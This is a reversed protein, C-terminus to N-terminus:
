IKDINIQDIDSDSIFEAYQIPLLGIFLKSTDRINRILFYVYGGGFCTNIRVIKQVYYEQNPIMQKVRLYQCQPALKFKQTLEM